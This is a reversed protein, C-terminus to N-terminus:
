GDRELFEGCGVLSLNLNAILKFSFYLKIRTGGDVSNSTENM